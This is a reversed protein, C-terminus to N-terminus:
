YNQFDIEKLPVFEQTDELDSPEQYTGYQDKNVQPKQAKIFKEVISESIIIRTEHPGSFIQKNKEPVSAMITEGTIKREAM